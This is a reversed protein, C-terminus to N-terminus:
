PGFDHFVADLVCDPRERDFLSAIKEKGNGLFSLGLIGGVGGELNPCIQHQDALICYSVDQSDSKLQLWHLKGEDRIPVM